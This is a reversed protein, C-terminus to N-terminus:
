TKPEPHEKHYRVVENYLYELESWIRPNNTGERLDEIVPAILEWALMIPGTTTSAIIPLSLYGGRVFGGLDEFSMLIFRINRWREYMESNKHYERWRTIDLERMDLLGDLFRNDAMRNSFQLFVQADRSKQANKLTTIYYFVGVPVSILTVITLLTQLAELTIM